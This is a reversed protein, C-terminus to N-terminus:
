VCGVSWDQRWDCRIQQRANIRSSTRIRNYLFNISAYCAHPACWPEQGVRLNGDRSVTVLCKDDSAIRADFVEDDHELPQCLLEGTRWNWYRAMTDRCSTLLGNGAQNFSATFVWDPHELTQGVQEGSEVDFVRTQKFSVVSLHKSDASFRADCMGLKSVTCSIAM